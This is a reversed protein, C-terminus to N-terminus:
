SLSIQTLQIVNIGDQYHALVGSSLIIVATASCIVLTDMFVVLMQIYGQSAPHPPYPTASDAANPASGMGAAYSFLGR